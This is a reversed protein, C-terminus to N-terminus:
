LQRTLNHIEAMVVWDPHQKVVVQVLTSVNRPITEGFLAEYLNSSPLNYSRITQDIREAILPAYPKLDWVALLNDSYVWYLQDCRYERRNVLRVRM